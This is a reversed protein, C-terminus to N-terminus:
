VDLPKWSDENTGKILFSSTTAAQEHTPQNEVTAAGIGDTARSHSDIDYRTGNMTWEAILKTTNMETPVGCYALGRRRGKHGLTDM